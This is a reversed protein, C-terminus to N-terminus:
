STAWVIPLTDVGVVHGGHTKDPLIPDPSFMPVRALWEQLMVNIEIRALHRGICRHPGAGFAIHNIRERGIDVQDGHAFVRDDINAATYNILAMDGKRLEAGRWVEDKMVIRAVPAIAHRRVMEEMAHQIEAPNERLRQQLGHDRALYRVIFAMANAVTDLGAFFLLQAYDLALKDSVPEGDIELDLLYSVLDDERRARRARIVEALMEDAKAFAEVRAAPVPSTIAVCAYDRFEHLKSKDLGMIDMFILVPLPEAVADFFDCRGRDAVADILEIALARIQDERRFMQSPTFAAALPARFRAHDPPDIQLPVMRLQALEPSPPITMQSSSFLDTRKAADVTAEYGQIVWYGGRRPSWFLDPAEDRLLVMAETVGGASEFRSDEFMDYDVVLAPDIRAPIEELASNSM